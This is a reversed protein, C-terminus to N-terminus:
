NNICRLWRKVPQGWRFLWGRSMAKLIRGAAKAARALAQLNIPTRPKNPWRQAEKNPICHERLRRSRRLRKDIRTQSSLVFTRLGQDIQKRIM